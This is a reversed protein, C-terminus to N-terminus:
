EQKFEHKKCLRRALGKAKGSPLQITINPIAPIKFTVEAMDDVELKPLEKSEEAM